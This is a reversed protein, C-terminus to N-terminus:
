AKPHVMNKMFNFTVILPCFVSKFDPLGASLLIILKSNYYENIIKINETKMKTKTIIHM